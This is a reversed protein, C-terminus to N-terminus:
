LQKNRKWNSTDNTWLTEFCNWIQNISGNSTREDPPIINQLLLVLQIGFHQFNILHITLIYDKEYWNLGRLFTTNNLNLNRSIEFSRQIRRKEILAKVNGRLSKNIIENESINIPKNLKFLVDLM